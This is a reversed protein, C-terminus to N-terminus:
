WMSNNRLIYDNNYKIALERDLYKTWFM